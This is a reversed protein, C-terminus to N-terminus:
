LEGDGGGELWLKGKEWLGTAFKERGNADGGGDGSRGHDVRLPVPDIYSSAAVTRLRGLEGGGIGCLSGGGGGGGSGEICSRVSCRRERVHEGDAVVRSSSGLEGSEETESLMADM